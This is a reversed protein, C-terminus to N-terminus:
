IKLLLLPFLAYLMLSVKKDAIRELYKEIGEFEYNYNEM